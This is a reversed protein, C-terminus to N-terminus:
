ASRSCLWISTRCSATTDGFAEANEVVVISGAFMWDHADDLLIAAGGAIKTLESVPVVVRGDRSVVKINPKTSRVFLGECSAAKAMKANGAIAVASARDDIGDLSYELGLPFRSQAYREFAEADIILLRSGRSAALWRVAGCTELAEVTTKRNTGVRSAAIGAAGANRLDRLLRRESESM